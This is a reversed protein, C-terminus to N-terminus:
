NASRYNHELMVAKSEGIQHPKAMTLFELQSADCGLRDSLMFDVSENDDATVAGVVACVIEFILVVDGADPELCDFGTVLSSDGGKGEFGAGRQDQVTFRDFGPNLLM